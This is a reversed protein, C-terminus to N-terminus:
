AMDQQMVKLLYAFKNRIHMEKDRRVIGHAKQNMYHYWRFELSDEEASAAEPLKYHPISILVARLEAYQEPTFNFLRLPSQWLETEPEEPHGEDSVDEAQEVVELPKPINFQIAVVKKGNKIVEYDYRCDTKSEIELKSSKLVQRNFESFQEYSKLTNCGLYSKLADLKIKWIELNKHKAVYLYMKYSYEKKLKIIEKLQYRFYGITELNFFYEKAEPSCNLAIVWQDYEDKWRESSSFLTIRKRHLLDEEDDGIDILHTQLHDLRPLLEEENIKTVGLLREYEGAEFVVQTSDPDHPNIRAMYTDIIKIEELTFNQNILLALEWNKQITMKETNKLGYLVKSSQVEM